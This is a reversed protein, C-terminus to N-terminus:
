FIVTAKRPTRGLPLGTDSKSLCLKRRHKISEFKSHAMKLANESSVAGCCPWCHTNMAMKGDWRGFVKQHLKAQMNGRGTKTDVCCLVRLHCFVTSFQIHQPGGISRKM